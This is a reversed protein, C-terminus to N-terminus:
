FSAQRSKDLGQGAGACHAQCDIVRSCIYIPIILQSSEIHGGVADELAVLENEFFEDASVNWCEDDEAASVAAFAILHDGFHNGINQLAPAFILNSAALGM